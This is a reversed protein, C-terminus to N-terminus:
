CALGHGLMRVFFDDEEFPNFLPKFLPQFLLPQFRGLPLAHSFFPNEFPIFNILLYKVM